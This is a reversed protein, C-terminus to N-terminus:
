EWLIISDGPPLAIQLFVELEDTFYIENKRMLEAVRRFTDLTARRGTSYSHVYYDFIIGFRRRRAASLDEYKSYTDIAIEVGNYDNVVSHTIHEAALAIEGSELVVTKWEFNSDMSM